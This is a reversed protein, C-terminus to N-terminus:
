LAPHDRLLARLNRRFIPSPGKEGILIDSLGLARIKELLEPSPPGDGREGLVYATEEGTVAQPLREFRLRGRNAPCHEQCALCGILTRTRLGAFEAPLEGESESFGTLCREGHYLFRDEVIAQVPCARLCARCSRCEELVLPAGEPPIGCGPLSLDTAFGMLQAGSGFGDVYAINNKGYRAFGTLGAVTKLPVSLRRLKLADGTAATLDALVEGFLLNYRLYTPPLALDHRRGRDEFTLLHAPRPVALLIVTRAEAKVQFEPDVMWSLFKAFFGPDIVGDKRLGLIRDFARGVIGGEYWAIRYDREAAWGRLVQAIGETM